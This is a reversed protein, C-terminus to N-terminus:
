RGFFMSIFPSVLYIIMLLMNFMMPIMMLNEKRELEIKKIRYYRNHIDESLSIFDLSLDRTTFTKNKEILISIKKVVIWRTLNYLHELDKLHEDVERIPAFIVQSSIAENLAQLQHKGRLLSLEYIFLHRNIKEILLLESKKQRESIMLFVFLVFFVGTLIAIWALEKVFSAVTLLLLLLELAQSLKCLLHVIYSENWGSVLTNTLLFVFGEIGRMSQFVKQLLIPWFILYLIFIVIM